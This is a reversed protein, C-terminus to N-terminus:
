SDMNVSYQRLISVLQGRSLTMVKSREALSKASTSFSNSCLMIKGFGCDKGMKETKTILDSGAPKRYDKVIVGTEGIGPKFFDANIEKQTLLFDFKHDQGSNGTLTVKEIKEINKIGLFARFLERLEYRSYDDLNEM